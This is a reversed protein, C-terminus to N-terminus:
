EKSSVSLIALLWLRQGVGTSRLLLIHKDLVQMIATGKPLSSPVSRLSFDEEAKQIPGTRETNLLKSM